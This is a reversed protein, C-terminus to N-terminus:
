SPYCGEHVWGTSWVGHTIVDGPRVQRYCKSCTQSKTAVVTERERTIESSTATVGNPHSPCFHRDVDQGPRPSRRTWGDERAAKWLDNVYAPAIKYRMACASGGALEADCTLVYM